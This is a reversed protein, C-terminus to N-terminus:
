AGAGMGPRLRVGARWRAARDCDGTTDPRRVGERGARARRPTGAGAAGGADGRGETSRPVAVRVHRARLGRASLVVVDARVYSRLHTVPLARREAGALRAIRM